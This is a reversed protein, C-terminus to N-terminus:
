KFSEAMAECFGAIEDDTHTAMATIRLGFKDDTHLEVVYYGLGLLKDIVRLTKDKSEFYVNVIHRGKQNLAFNREKLGDYIKGTNEQMKQVLAPNEMVISLAKLSAGVSMASLSTSYVFPRLPKLIHKEADNSFALFGGQSGLAKSFTGMIFDAIGDLAYYEEIGRGTKGICGTAHAEDLILLFYYKEKLRALEDLPTIAGDITFVSPLTVIKRRYNDEKLLMELHGLDLHNFVRKPCGSLRIGDGASPHHKQDCYFATDDGGLGQHIAVNAAYGSSFIVGKDRHKFKAIVESLAVHLETTGSTGPAGGTGCGYQEAAEKAAALVEAHHSLGLYDNSSFIVLPQRDVTIHQANRSQFILGM